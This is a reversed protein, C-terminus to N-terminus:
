YFGWNFSYRIQPGALFRVVNAGPQLQELPIPAANNGLLTRHYCRPDGPAGEPQPLAIWDHDNVRFKQNSTGIHGGWYEVSLEARAAKDLDLTISKPVMHAMKAMAFDPQKKRPCDPDLEAFHTTKSKGYNFTFERFVDGPRPQALSNGAAALWLASVATVFLVGKPLVPVMNIRRPM